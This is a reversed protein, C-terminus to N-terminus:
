KQRRSIFPLYLMGLPPIFRRANKAAQVYPFYKKLDNIRKEFLHWSIASTSFLVAVNLLLYAPIGILDRIPFGFQYFLWATAGPIFFHFVYIGYSIKGIYAVPVWTLVKGVPGTIGKACSYVIGLLAPTLLLRTIFLGYAELGQPIPLLYRLSIYAAGAFISLRILWRLTAKGHRISQDNRQVLALLSGIALSDLSSIPLVNVAVENAHLLFGMVYRFLPALCVCFVILPLLYRKAVFLMIFPWILYFQEEVALSWFHSVDGLYEGRWAFFFNSLYAIHWRISPTIDPHGLIFGLFLTAYFLPFIRLFRRMYFAKLVPVKSLASMEAKERVDLLIGSILFGSIIFFLQVGVEGNFFPSNDSWLNQHYGAWHSYIVMSVAIARLADIQKLYVPESLNHDAPM